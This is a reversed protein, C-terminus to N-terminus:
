CKKEEARRANKEQVRLLAVEIDVDERAAAILACTIIDALEDAFNTKLKKNFAEDDVEEWRTWANTAECVEGACHKLISFTDSKLQGKTERKKAAKLAIRSMRNLDIM